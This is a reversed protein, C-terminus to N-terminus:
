PASLRTRLAAILERRNSVLLKQRLKAVHQEVTRPSIYLRAGIEKHTLGDVLLEGVARERDTLGDGTSKDTVVIKARFTRGATLLDKAAPHNTLRSAAAGCLAAADWPQGNSALAEATRAVAGPDISGSDITMALVSAWVKAATARLTLRNNAAALTTLESAAASALRHDAVVIARQLRWWQHVAACWPPSGACTAAATMAEVITDREIASVLAAGVSLEGWADLLLLEVDVGAVLPAVRHWTARLTQVDSARRALGITIAAALIADRRQAPVTAAAALGRQVDALRGARLDLWAMLLRGRTTKPRDTHPALMDRARRDDGAAVVVTMALEDWCQAALPDAPVTSMALGALRRAARDFDGRIAENVADVGDLLATLGRPAAGPLMRNRAQTLDRAAAQVDGALTAALAARGGAWSGPPGGLATAIGRWRNAADFLAGDAAAGAAAVGAALCDPDAGSALARDAAEVATTTDGSRWARDALLADSDVSSNVPSNVPAVSVEVAMPAAAPAEASRVPVADISGNATSGGPMTPMTLVGRVLPLLEGDTGALGAAVLAARLPGTAEFPASEGFALALALRRADPVLADLEARVLQVAADPVPHDASALITALRPNGGTARVIVAARKTDGGVSPLAAVQAPTWSGLVVPKKGGTLAADPPNLGAGPVPRYSAVVGGGIAKARSAVDAVAALIPPELLHADDVALLWPPEGLKALLWAAATARSTITGRVGLARLGASAALRVVTAGTPEVAAVVADLFLTKGTGAVGVVAGSATRAGPRLLRHPTANGASVHAISTM